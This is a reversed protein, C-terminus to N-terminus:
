AAYGENVKELLEHFNLHLSVTSEDGGRFVL